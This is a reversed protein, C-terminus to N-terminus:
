NLGVISLLRETVSLISGAAGGLGVEGLVEGYRATLARYFFVHVWLLWLIFVTKAFRGM